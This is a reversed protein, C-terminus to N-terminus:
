KWGELVDEPKIARIAAALRPHELREVLLAAREYAAQVAATHTPVVISWGRSQEIRVCAFDREPSNPSALWNRGSWWLRMELTGGRVKRSTDYWGPAPPNGTCWVPKDGAEAESIASSLAAIVAQSRPLMKRHLSDSAACNWQQLLDLAMKM